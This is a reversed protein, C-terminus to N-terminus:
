FILRVLNIVTSELAKELTTKGVDQLIDNVQLKALIGDVISDLDKQVIQESRGDRIRSEELNRLLEQLESNLAHVYKGFTKSPNDVEPLATRSIKSQSSLNSSEAAPSSTPTEINLGKRSKRPPM